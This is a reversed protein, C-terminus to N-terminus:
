SVTGPLPTWPSPVFTSFGAGAYVEGPMITDDAGLVLRLTTPAGSNLPWPVSCMNAIISERSAVITPYGSPITAALTVALERNAWTWAIGSPGIILDRM